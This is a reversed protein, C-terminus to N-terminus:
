WYSRAATSHWRLGTGVDEVDDISPAEVKRFGPRPKVQLFLNEMALGHFQQVVYIKLVIPLLDTVIPQQHASLCQMLTQQVNRGLRLMALYWNVDSQPMFRSPGVTLGPPRCEFVTFVQDTVQDNHRVAHVALKDVADRIM